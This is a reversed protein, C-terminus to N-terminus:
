SLSLESLGVPSLLNKMWKIAPADPIAAHQYRNYGKGASKPVKAPTLVTVVDEAYKEPLSLSTLCRLHALKNGGKVSWSARAGKMRAGLITFINSEAAGCRRYVTGDKPSPLDLGRRHYPILGDKNNTFYILLSLLKKREKEDGVSNSLAEIYQLLLDIQKAYLLKFMQARWEPDSVNERIARNCHFTDLQYHSNADGDASRKTWAAGDDNMIFVDKVGFSAMSEGTVFVGCGVRAGNTAANDRIAGGNMTIRGRNNYVAPGHTPSRANQLSAGGNIILEGGDAIYVLSATFPDSAWHAKDGDLIIDSLTLAAGASVTLLNGQVARTLTYPGGTGSAISVNTGAPVTLPSMLDFSATIIVSVDAGASELAATRRLKRRYRGGRTRGDSDICFDIGAGDFEGVSKDDEDDRHVEKFNIM